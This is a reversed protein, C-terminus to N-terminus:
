KARPMSPRVDGGLQGKGSTFLLLGLGETRVAEEPAEAPLSWAQVGRGPLVRVANFAWVRGPSLADSTLANIPIALEVTWCRAENHQAVFWRPNWTKDGWCDELLCGRQDVQLHFYTSYDRDLDFFLSVRDQDRLSADHLRPRLPQQEQGAPHFCRIAVYLYEQDYALRLDTPYDTLLKSTPDTPRGAADLKDGPGPKPGADVLKVPEVQQWCPDDLKGDLHPRTDTLRCTAVDRPPAGTRDLLWLEALAARKWPGEPQREAFEAYWKRPTDFDGLNRRASQLCFQIAPDHRFLPGYGALKAELDLCSEYWQKTEAQNHLYTAQRVERNVIQPM